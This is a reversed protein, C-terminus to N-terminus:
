MCSSSFYVPPNEDSFWGNEIDEEMQERERVWPTECYGCGICYDVAYEYEGDSGM